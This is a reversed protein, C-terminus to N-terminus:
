NDVSYSKSYLQSNIDQQGRVTLSSIPREQYPRYKEKYRSMVDERINKEANLIYTSLIDLRVRVKHDAKEFGSQSFSEPNDDILKQALVM